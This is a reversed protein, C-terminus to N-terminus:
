KNVQEKAVLERRFETIFHHDNVQAAMQLADQYCKHAKERLERSQDTHGMKEVYEAQTWFADGVQKHTLPLLNNFHRAETLAYLALDFLQFKLCRKGLEILDEWNKEARAREIATKFEDQIKASHHDSFSGNNKDNTAM